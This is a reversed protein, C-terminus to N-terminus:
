KKDFFNRGMSAELPHAQFYQSRRAERKHGLQKVWLKRLFDARSEMGAIPSLGSSKQSPGQVLPVQVGDFQQLNNM